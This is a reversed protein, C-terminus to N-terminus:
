EQTDKLDKYKVIHALLIQERVRLNPKGLTEISENREWLSAKCFAKIKLITKRDEGLYYRLLKLWERLYVHQYAIAANRHVAKPLGYIGVM